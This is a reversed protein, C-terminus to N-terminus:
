TDAEWLAYYFCPSLSDLDDLLLCRVCYEHWRTVTSYYVVIFINHVSISPGNWPDMYAVYKPFFKTDLKSYSKIKFAIITHIYIYIHTYIYMSLWKLWRQSKAAGHVTAWWVGRDMSNELCSYLLPNGNGGGTSRGSGPLSSEDGANAPLNKVVLGEQSPRIYTYMYLLTHIYIYVFM